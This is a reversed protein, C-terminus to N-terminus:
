TTASRAARSCTTWRTARRTTSGTSGWVNRKILCYVCPRGQLDAFDKPTLEFALGKGEARAKYASYTGAGMTAPWADSHDIGKAIHEARKRFNSPDLQGKMMNCCKCAPACNGDMYGDENLMRDIGNGEREESAKGCYACDQSMMELAKATDELFAVVDGRKKRMFLLASLRYCTNNKRYLNKFYDPHTERFARMQNRYFELFADPNIARLRARYERTYNRPNEAVWQKKKEKRTDKSDNVKDKDRCTKCHDTFRSGGAVHAAAGGTKADTIFQDESQYQRVTCKYNGCFRLGERSSDQM